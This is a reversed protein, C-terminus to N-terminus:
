LDGKVKTPWSNRWDNYAKFPFNDTTFSWTTASTSAAM